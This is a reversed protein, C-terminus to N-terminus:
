DRIWNRGVREFRMHWGIMDVYLIKDCAWDLTMFRYDGFRGGSVATPNQQFSGILLNIDRNQRRITITTNGGLAGQDSSIVEAIYLANPSPETIVVETHGFNWFLLSFFAVALSLLLLPSMLLSYIVVFANRSKSKLSHRFFLVLACIMYLYSLFIYSLPDINSFFPKAFIFFLMILPLLLAIDVSLKDPSYSERYSITTFTTIALSILVTLIGWNISPIFTYRLLGTVFCLFTLSVLVAALIVHLAPRNKAVATAAATTGLDLDKHQVFHTM